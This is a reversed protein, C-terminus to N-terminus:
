LFYNLLKKSHAHYIPDYRFIILQKTSLIPTSAIIEPVYTLVKLTSLPTLSKGKSYMHLQVINLKSTEYLLHYHM